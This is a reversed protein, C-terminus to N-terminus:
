LKVQRSFKARKAAESVAATPSTTELARLVPDNTAVTVNFPVGDIQMRQPLPTRLVLVGARIGDQFVIPKLIVPSAMRRGNPTAAELTGKFAPPKGNKGAFWQYVTPLGLFAKALQLDSKGNGHARLQSHDDWEGGHMPSYASRNPTFHGKRFRVWFNALSRWVKEEIQTRVEDSHVDIPAKLGESLEALSLTSKSLTSYQTNGVYELEEAFWGWLTDPTEPTWEAANEGIVMLSGCGRRTRSGVGGFVVWARVASRVEDVLDAPMQHDLTVRLRFRVGRRGLAEPDNGNELFPFVFYQERPGERAPSGGGKGLESPRVSTGKCITEVEIRPPNFSQREAKEGHQTASGWLRAEARFLDPGSAYGTGATARWWFRLQGRISAARVPHDEDTQRKQASGGFMPTMTILELDWITQDPRQLLPPLLPPTRPM